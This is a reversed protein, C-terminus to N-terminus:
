CSAIGKTWRRRVPRQARASIPVAFFLPFIVLAAAVGWHSGSTKEKAGLAM